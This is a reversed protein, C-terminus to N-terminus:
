HHTTHREGHLVEIPTGVTDILVRRSLPAPLSFEVQRTEAYLLRMGEGAATTIRRPSVAVATDSAVVEAGDYDDYARPSGVFDLRFRTGPLDLSHATGAGHRHEPMPWMQTREDVDVVIFPALTESIELSWADLPHPGRDTRFAHRVRVAALVSLAHGPGSVVPGIEETLSRVAAEPVRGTIELRREHFAEKAEGDM